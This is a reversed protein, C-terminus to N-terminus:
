KKEEELALAHKGRRLMELIEGAYRRAMKAKESIGPEDEPKATTDKPFSDFVSYNPNATKQEFCTEWFSKLSDPDYAMGSAIKQAWSYEEETFCIDDVHCIEGADLIYLFGNKRKIRKM